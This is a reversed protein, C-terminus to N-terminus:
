TSRTGLSPLPAYLNRTYYAWIHNRGEAHLQQLAAITKELTQRETPNTIGHDDLAFSPDDGHEIADAVDGMFADFTEAHDVLSM